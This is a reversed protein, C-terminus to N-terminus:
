VSGPLESVFTRKALDADMLFLGSANDGIMILKQLLDDVNAEEEVQESVFWQLMANTSHDNEQIALTVCENIKESIMQEHALTETVVALPSDWTAPPQDMAQLRVAAGRDNVYTFIRQMHTIEEQAQILMWNAFGKLNITEFYGVMAYYLYASYGELAIQDNLKNLIPEKLM